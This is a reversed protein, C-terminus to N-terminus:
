EATEAAGVCPARLEADRLDARPDSTAVKAAAEDSNGDGNLFRKDM